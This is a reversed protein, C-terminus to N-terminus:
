ISVTIFNTVGEKGRNSTTIHNRRGPQCSSLHHACVLCPPLSFAPGRDRWARPQILEHRAFGCVSLKRDSSVSWTARATWLRATWPRTANGLLGRDCPWSPTVSGCRKLRATQSCRCCREEVGLVCVCDRLCVCVFVRM